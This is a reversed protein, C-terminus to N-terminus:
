KIIFIFFLIFFLIFVLLVIIKFFDYKKIYTKFKKFKNFKNFIHQKKNIIIKYENKIHNIQEESIDYGLKLLVNHMYTNDNGHIFFPKSNMYRLSKNKININTNMLIDNSCNSYTLFFINNIDIYVDNPNDKFYKTFLVQDDDDDEYELKNIIELIHKAKGLYSGACIRVDKCTDFAYRAIIETINNINRDTSIIIKKNSMKIINNYYEEIDDLPRLLLVDFADIFIILENPDISKLYDIILKFRWSFGLWKQGYGLKILEVNFRECSKELWPLYGASHTSVTILKVM